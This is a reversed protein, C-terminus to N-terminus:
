NQWNHKCNAWTTWKVSHFSQSECIASVTYKWPIWSTGYPTSTATAPSTKGLMGKERGTSHIGLSGWVLLFGYTTWKMKAHHLDSLLFPFVQVIQTNTMCYSIFHQGWTKSLLLWRQNQLLLHQSVHCSVAKHRIYNEAAQSVPRPCNLATRISHGRLPLKLARIVALSPIAPEAEWFGM